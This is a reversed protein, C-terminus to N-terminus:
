RVTTHEWSLATDGELLHRDKNEPRFVVIIRRHMGNNNSEKEAVITSYFPVEPASWALIMQYTIKDTIHNCLRRCNGWKYPVSIISTRASRILKKVFAGPDKVHEVVQSCLLLDFTQPVVYHMFDAEILEGM